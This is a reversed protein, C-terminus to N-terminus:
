HPYGAADLAARLDRTAIHVPDTFTTGSSQVLRLLTYAAFRLGEAHFQEIAHELRQCQELARGSLDSRPGNELASRVASLAALVAAKNAENKNSITM